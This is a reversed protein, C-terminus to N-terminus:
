REGLEKAMQIADEIFEEVRKTHVYLGAELSIFKYACMKALRPELEAPQFSLSEALELATLGKGSDMSLELILITEPEALFGFMESLRKLRAAEEDGMNAPQQFIWDVAAPKNERQSRERREIVEVHSVAVTETM